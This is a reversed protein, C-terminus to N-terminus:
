SLTQICQASQHIDIRIRVYPTGGETGYGVITVAHNLDRGCSATFIGGSYHIFADCSGDIAVAVPRKAVINMLGSTSCISTEYSNSIKSAIPYQASRCTPNQAQVFRYDSSSAVGKTAFEFAYDFDGGNCGDNQKVCDIM